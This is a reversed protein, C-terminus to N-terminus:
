ASEREANLPPLSGAETPNEKELADLAKMLEFACNRRARAQAALVDGFPTLYARRADAADDKAAQQWGLALQRIRSM